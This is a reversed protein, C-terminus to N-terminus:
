WQFLRAEIQCLCSVQEKQKWLDGSKDAKDKLRKMEKKANELERERLGEINNMNSEKERM